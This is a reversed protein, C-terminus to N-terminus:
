EAAYTSEKLRKEMETIQLKLFPQFDQYRSMIQAEINAKQATSKVYVPKGKIMELALVPATQPTLIQVDVADTQFIQMLKDIFQLHLRDTDKKQLDLMVAIDIDSLANATGRAQSGYVYIAVVHPQTSFYETLASLHKQIRM